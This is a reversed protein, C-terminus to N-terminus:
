AGRASGRLLEELECIRAIARLADPPNAVSVERANRRAWGLWEILVALGASDAATVGSLDVTIAGRAAAFAELGADLASRATGFTLAGRVEYRNPAAEVVAVESPSAGRGRAEM